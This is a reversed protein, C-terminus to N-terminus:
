TLILHTEMLDGTEVADAKFVDEDSKRDKFSCLSKQAVFDPRHREEHSRRVGRLRSDQRRSIM